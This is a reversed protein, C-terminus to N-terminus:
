NPSVTCQLTYVVISCTSLHNCIAMFQRLGTYVKWENWYRTPQINLHSTSHSLTRLNNETLKPINDLFHLSPVNLPLLSSCGMKISSTSTAIYHQEETFLNLKTVKLILSKVPLWGGGGLFFVRKGCSYKIIFYKTYLTLRFLEFLSAFLMLAQKRHHMQTFLLSNLSWLLIM